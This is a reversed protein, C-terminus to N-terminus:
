SCLLVLGLVLVLHVLLGLSSAWLWPSRFILNQLEAEMRTKVEAEGAEVLDGHAVALSSEGNKQTIKHRVSYIM